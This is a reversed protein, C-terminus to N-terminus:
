CLACCYMKFIDDFTLNYYKKLTSFNFFCLANGHFNWFSKFPGDNWRWFYTSWFYRHRLLGENSGEFDMIFACLKEMLNKAITMQLKPFHFFCFNFFLMKSLGNITFWVKECASNIISLDFKAWIHLKFINAMLLHNGNLKAFFKCPRWKTTPLEFFELSKGSIEKLLPKWFITNTSNVATKAHKSKFYDRCYEIFHLLLKSPGYNYCYNVGIGGNKLYSLGKGM